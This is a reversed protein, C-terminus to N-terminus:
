CAGSNVGSKKTSDTNSRNKTKQTTRNHTKVNQTVDAVIEVYFRYENRLDDATTQLLAWIKNVNNTKTQMYHYGGYITNHKQKAKRQRNGTERSQGNKIAGEINELM